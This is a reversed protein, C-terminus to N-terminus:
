RATKPSKKGPLERNNAHTPRFAPPTIIRGDRHELSPEGGGPRRPRVAFSKKEQPTRWDANAFRVNLFL